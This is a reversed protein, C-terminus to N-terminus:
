QDLQRRLNDISQRRSSGKPAYREGRVYADLANQLEGRRQLDGGLFRYYDWRVDTNAIAGWMLLASFGLALASGRAASTRQKALAVTVLAALGVIAVIAAARAGPLDLLYATGFVLGSACVSVLVVEFTQPQQAPAHAEPSRALWQALPALARGIFAYVPEPLLFTAALVLMYYSFWGIELKLFEAGVHLSVAVAFFVLMSRRLWLRETVDQVVALAYGLAILLEVPIVSTSVLSWFTSTSLGHESLRAALPGFIRGAQSIRQLTHGQCWQTDMKAVSTFVYLVSISAGLLNFGFGSARASTAEALTLRPFFIMCLMILSVFYHHQYSDLMSM